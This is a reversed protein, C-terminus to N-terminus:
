YALDNGLAPNWPPCSPPRSWDAPSSLPPHPCAASRASSDREAAFMMLRDLRDGQYHRRHEYRTTLAAFM